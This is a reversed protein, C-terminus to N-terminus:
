KKEGFHEQLKENLELFSDEMEKYLGIWNLRGTELRRRINWHQAELKQRKDKDEISNLFKDVEEQLLKDLYEPDKRQGELMEDFSPLM